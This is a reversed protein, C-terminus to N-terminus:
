SSCKTAVNHRNHPSRAKRCPQHKKAGYSDPMCVEGQESSSAAILETAPQRRM